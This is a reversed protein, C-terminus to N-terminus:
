EVPQNGSTSFSNSAPLIMARENDLQNNRINVNKCNQAHIAAKFFDPIEEEFKITCFDINLGNVDKALIGALDHKFISLEKKYVPRLDLNGGYGENLKSNSIQLTMKDFSINSIHDPEDSYIVIGTESNCKIGSFSIDRITGVSTSQNRKVCSIHVPEGNGWWHGTHLRTEIIISSFTVNRISPNDRAFIGIGRNSNKIIINSFALNQIEGKGPGIRIGSSRSELICNSVVVNQTPLNKKGFTTFILADDGCIFNCDSVRVDECSTFHIGDSNPVLQDNSIDVNHITINKSDALRMAWHPSNIIKIGSILINNGNILHIMFGPRKNMKVPGDATGYKPNLYDNGQRTFKVDLDRPNHLEGPLKFADSSCDILGEGTISINSANNSTIIGRTQINEINTLDSILFDELNSSAKLVAGAMLHLNVNGKLIITGTYFLGPPVTVNGGGNESCSEIARNIAETNMNAPGAEAGFDTIIYEQSYIQSCTFLLWFGTLLLQKM